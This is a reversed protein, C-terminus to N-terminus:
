RSVNKKNRTHFIRNIEKFNKGKELLEELTDEFKIVKEDIYCDNILNKMNKISYFQEKSGNFYIHKFNCDM